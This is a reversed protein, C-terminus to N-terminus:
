LWGRMWAVLLATVSFGTMMAISTWFGHAGTAFFAFQPFNMGLVGAIVGLSGLIVTVLTLVRVNDNTRQATRSTYLEFSGVVLARANEVADVAREYRTDLARFNADPEGGDPAPRFDPRALANFLKRHSSLMLRLHSAARRLTVLDPLSERHKRSALISVELKDVATEFISVAEFYTFIHWDLLSAVFSEASLAGLKTEARERERLTNLFEIPERHISLVYNPGALLALALGKFEMGSSHRVAVAQALFATGFNELQPHESPERLKAAVEASLQLREIIRDLLARDDGQLDIWLLESEAIHQTDIQEVTIERDHGDAAYLTIHSCTGADTNM